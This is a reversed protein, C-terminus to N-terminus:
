PELLLGLIGGAIGDLLLLTRVQGGLLLVRSRALTDAQDTATAVLTWWGPGSSLYPWTVGYPFPFAVEIPEVEDPPTLSVAIDPVLAALHILRLRGENPGVVTDPDTIQWLEPGGPGDRVAFTHLREEMFEFRGAAIPTDSGTQRIEVTQVGTAVVGSLSALQPPVAVAARRDGVVLDLPPLGPYSHV